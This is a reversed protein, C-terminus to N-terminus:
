RRSSAGRARYAQRYRLFAQPSDGLGELVQAYDFAVRSVDTASDLSEAVELARDFFGRAAAADGASGAIRGAVRRAAVEALPDASAKTAELATHVRREALAM